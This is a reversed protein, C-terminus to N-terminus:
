NHAKQTGNTYRKKEMQAGKEKQTGKTREKTNIEPDINNDNTNIINRKQHKKSNLHRKYDGKLNTKYMCFLCEYKYMM